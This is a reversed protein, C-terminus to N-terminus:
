ATSTAHAVNKQTGATCKHEKRCIVVEEVLHFFLPLTVSKNDVVASLVDFLYIARHYQVIKPLLGVKWHIYVFCSFCLALQM